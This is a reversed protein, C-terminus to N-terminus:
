QWMSCLAMRWNPCPATAQNERAAGEEPLLEDCREDVHETLDDANLGVM